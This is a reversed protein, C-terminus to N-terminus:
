GLARLIPVAALWTAIMSLAIGPVVRSVYAREGTGVAMAAKACANTTVAALVPLVADAATLKGSAVLSAVSLSAAHTDILGGLASGLMVGTEGFEARLWASVVMMVALTAVLVM